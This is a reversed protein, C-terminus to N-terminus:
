LNSYTATNNYSHHYKKELSSIETTILGKVATPQNIPESCEASTALYIFEAALPNSQEPSINLPEVANNQDAIPSKITM